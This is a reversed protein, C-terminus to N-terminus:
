KLDKLVLWTTNGDRWKICMSFEQTTQRRQKTCSSTTVFTDQSKVAVENFRHDSIKDMLVHHNGEKDIHASMNEAILNASFASKKDDAYEVKTCVLIWSLTIVPM